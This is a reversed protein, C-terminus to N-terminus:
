REELFACFDAQGILDPANAIAHWAKWEDSVPFAYVGRHDGFQPEGDAGTRHYNLVAVLKPARPDDVAFVASGDSRSFRKVHEIFSELKTFSATGKRREPTLRRADLWQKTDFVQKDRPVVLIFGAGDNDHLSITEAAALGTVADIVAEADSENSTNSTM